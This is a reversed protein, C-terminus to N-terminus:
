WRRLRSLLSAPSYFLVKLINGLKESTEITISAFDQMYRTYRLDHTRLNPISTDVEEYQAGLVLPFPVTTERLTESFHLHM